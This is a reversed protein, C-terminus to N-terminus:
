NPYRVTIFNTAKEDNQLTLASQAHKSALLTNKNYDRVGYPTIAGRSIPEIARVQENDPNESFIKIGSFTVFDSQNRQM